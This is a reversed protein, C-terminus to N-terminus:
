GKLNIITPQGFITELEGRSVLRKGISFTAQGSMDRMWLLILLTKRLTQKGAYASMRSYINIQQKRGFASTPM